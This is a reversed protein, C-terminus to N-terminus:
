HTPPPPAAYHLLQSSFVEKKHRISETVYVKAFQLADEIKIGQTLAYLIAMSFVGSAGHASHNAIYPAEFLAFEEGDFFLDASHDSPETEFTRTPINGATLCINRAGLKHLRQVAVQADDLNHIEMAVLLEADERNMVLLDTLPLRKILEERVRGDAIDEGNPGSLTLNLVLPGKLHQGLQRFIVEVSNVQGVIGVLAGTPTTTSFLHELQAEVTDSPVDLVDTVKGHGAVVLSTCVPFAQGGLAKAVHLSPVMGRETGPYLAGAVIPNFISM